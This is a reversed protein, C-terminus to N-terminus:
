EAMHNARAHDRTTSGDRTTMLTSCVSLLNVGAGAAKAYSLQNAADVNYKKRNDVQPWCFSQAFRTWCHIPLIFTSLTHTSACIHRYSLVYLLAYPYPIDTRMHKNLDAQPMIGCFLEWAPDHEFLHCPHLARDRRAYLYCQLLFIFSCIQVVVRVSRCHYRRTCLFRKHEFILSNGLDLVCALISTKTSLGGFPSVIVRHRVNRAATWWFAYVRVNGTLRRFCM